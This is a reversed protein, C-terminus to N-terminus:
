VSAKAARRSSMSPAHRGPRLRTRIRRSRDEDLKSLRRKYAKFHLIM